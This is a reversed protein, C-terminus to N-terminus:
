AATGASPKGALGGDEKKGERYQGPTEGALERFWRVFSQSGGFHLRLAIGSIPERSQALYRKAMDLRLEDHLERYSSGERELQRHLSRSSMGMIRALAERSGQGQQLLSLLQARARSLFSDAQDRRDILQLAHQELVQQLAADPHALPRTLASNPLVLASVPQNFLVPCGFIREYERILAPEAPPAHRLLVRLVPHPGTNLMRIQITRWCGLLYETAQRRFLPNDTKCDWCWLTVGPRRMLTTRGIDSVLVEYRITMDIVEQLTACSQRIYGLVGFGTPSAHESMHLGLLPDRALKVGACVLRELYRAAVRGGPDASLTPPLGAAERMADVPLGRADASNIAHLLLSALVTDGAEPANDPPKHDTM